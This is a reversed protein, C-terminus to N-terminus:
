RPLSLPHCFSIVRPGQSDWSYHISISERDYRIWNQDKFKGSKNYNGLGDLENNKINIGELTGSFQCHGELERLYVFAVMIVQDANVRFQCGNIKDSIWYVDDMNEHSTDIQYIIELDYTSLLDIVLDSKLKLGIYNRPDYM